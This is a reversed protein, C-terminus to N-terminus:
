NVFAWAFSVLYSLLNVFYLAFLAFGVCCLCFFGAFGLLNM